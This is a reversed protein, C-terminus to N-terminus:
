ESIEETYGCGDKPCSKFAKKGKYKKVMFKNGCQPCKEGIPKSWSLFKCRPYNSCGYFPKKKKTFLVRLPSGCEPCPPLDKNSTSGEKKKVYKCKPYNSCSIFPGYKGKRMVLNGGCEPCKEDLVEEKKIVLEGSKTAVLTKKGKCKPYHECALFPGFRGNKLVMKSGCIECIMEQETANVTKTEGPLPMTKKCEPYNSCALFPGFPGMKIIMPSKCKPCIEETPIGEKRINTMENKAEELTKAFLKWFRKLLKLRDEDGKEIKDLEEELSATYNIDFLKPFHKVLIETVMRGLATPVLYGNEKRAYEREQVTSIITAYTSPRGIGNEELAKVLTAESYRAPPETWKQESKLEILELTEGKKINPLSKDESEDSTDYVSRFGKFTCISGQAQFMAEGCEIQAKTNHFVADEMQSAVFRKWILKYLAFEDDKLFDRISEPTRSVDTPRIAEHADQAGEKPAYIREKEPLFEKGFTESIFNRASKIAQPAIRTSDTRMYTILGTTEGGALDIGEYLRQAVSMTKKVPFKLLRAAEQQLKSTTYPPPPSKKVEKQILAHVQWKKGKLSQIIEDNKEKNKVEAKKGKFHTLKCEFPKKEEGQVLAGIVWYEEPVFAEIEAERESLMRLAVTQVRGASLRPKVKEWLLPSIYYGVLRDVIRRAIQAEVKHPDIEVPNAIAEKVSKQTIEYFLVRRTPKETEKFIESLHYCIAEGERDPDAALLIKKAKTATSLLEKVNKKKTSLIVFTPQFNKEVNVAIRDPPLDRIHGMSAKVVFGSGLYKSITRAKSPSEVVLLTESMIKGKRNKGRTDEM